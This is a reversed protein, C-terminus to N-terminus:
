FCETKLYIELIKAPTKSVIPKIFNIKLDVRYIKSIFGVSDVFRSVYRDIFIRNRAL